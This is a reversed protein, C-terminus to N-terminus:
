FLENYGVSKREATSRVASLQNYMDLNPEEGMPSVCDNRNYVWCFDDNHTSSVPMKTM